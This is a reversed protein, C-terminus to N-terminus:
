YLSHNTSVDVILPVKLEIVNTMTDVLLEKIIDKEEPHTDVVLEDHIQLILKSKLNRQKIEYNLKIMAIKIIDSSSGQLPSNIAVREGFNRELAKSSNLERIYRRRGFMTYSINGNAKAEIPANEMFTGVRPYTMFYTALFHKAQAQSISLTKALGFASQGYIIGFNVTKASSREIKTIQDIPKQFIKSATIKHIDIGNCFADIMTEDNSMHAMLRLEIQNYDASTLLGDAFRSVFIQRFQRTEENRNPINQLNPDSSSLRGTATVTQNYTTHIFDEKKYKAFGLIYTSLLKQVKRYRILNKIIPHKNENNELIEISTSRKANDAIDIRQEDFLVQALQLPSNINFEHGAEKHIQSILSNLEAEYIDRYKSLMESDIRIGAQEMDFLVDSLPLEINTYFNDQKLEVLKDKLKTWENILACTVSDYGEDSAWLKASDLKIGTDILYTALRIDFINQYAEISKLKTRFDKYDFLIKKINNDYLIPEMVKKFDKLDFGYGLLDTQFNMEYVHESDISFQMNTSFDLSIIAPKNKQLIEQLEEVKNITTVKAINIQKAQVNGGGVFLEKRRYLSYLEYDAFLQAVEDNFPFDYNCDSLNCDIDCDLKIRALELSIYAMEKSEVLKSRLNPSFDDLHNYVGDISGYDKILKLATKKGIGKVGPINDSADGMLAKTDVWQNPLIGYEEQFLQTDYKTVESIGKVTYWVTNTEDILQLDDRDGTLIITHEPFRKALTGIIDDAEIGTQEVININMATLFKKIIVFQGRLEDPTPKRTAKYEPFLENRFTIKSKDFAVCIYEPKYTTIFKILMNLFGFVGNTYDGNKTVLLPLGWYSRHLLSNGDILLLNKM